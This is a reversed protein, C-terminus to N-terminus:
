RWEGTARNGVITNKFFKTTAPHTHNILGLVLAKATVDRQFEQRVVDGVITLCELAELAFGASGRGQIMGVDARNVFDALVIAAGEKRHLQHLALRELM